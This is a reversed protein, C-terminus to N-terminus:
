CNTPSYRYLENHIYIDILFFYFNILKISKKQFNIKVSILTTKRLPAFGGITFGFNQNKSVNKFMVWEKYKVHNLDRNEFEDLVSYIRESEEHVLGNIYCDIILKLVSTISKLAFYTVYKEMIKNNASLSYIYINIM